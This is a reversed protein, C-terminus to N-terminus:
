RGSDVVEQAAALHDTLQGPDVVQQAGLEVPADGAQPGPDPELGPDADELRERPAAVPM